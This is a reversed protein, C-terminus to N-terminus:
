ATLIVCNMNPLSGNRSTVRYTSYSNVRKIPNLFHNRHLVQRIVEVFASCPMTWERPNVKGVRKVVLFLVLQHVNELFQVRKVLSVSLRFKTTNQEVATCKWFKTIKTSFIKRVQRFVLDEIASTGKREPFFKLCIKIQLIERGAQAM